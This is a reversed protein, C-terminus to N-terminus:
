SSIVGLYDIGASERLQVEMGRSGNTNSAMTFTLTGVASVARHVSLVGNCDNASGFEVAQGSENARGSSINTAWGAVTQAAADEALFLTTYTLLIPWTTGTYVIFSIHPFSTAPRGRWTTTAM